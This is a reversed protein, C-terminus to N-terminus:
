SQTFAGGEWRQYHQTHQWWQGCFWLARCLPQPWEWQTWGVPERQLELPGSRDSGPGWLRTEPSSRLFVFSFWFILIFTICSIFIHHLDDFRPLYTPTHRTHLPMSTTKGWLKLCAPNNLLLTSELRKMHQKVEEEDRNVTTQILLCTM